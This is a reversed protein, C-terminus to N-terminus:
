ATAGALGYAARHEYKYDAIVQMVKAELPRELGYVLYAGEDPPLTVQICQWRPDVLAQIPCDLVASLKGLRRGISSFDYEPFQHQSPQDSPGSILRQRRESGRSPAELNRRCPM